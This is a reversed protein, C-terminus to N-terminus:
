HAIGTKHSFDRNALPKTAPDRRPPFSIWCQYSVDRMPPLTNTVSCRRLSLNEAKTLADQYSSRRPTDRRPALIRGQHSFDRRSPVNQSLTKTHYTALAKSPTSFTTTYRSLWRRPSRRPSRRPPWRRSSLFETKTLARTALAKSLAKTVAGQHSYPAGQARRASLEYEM